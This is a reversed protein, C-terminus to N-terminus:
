RDSEVTSVTGVWRGSRMTVVVAEETEGALTFIVNELGVERRDFRGEFEDSEVTGGEMQEFEQRVMEAAAADGEDGPLRTPALEVLRRADAAAAVEDFPEISTELGVPAPRSVVSLMIAILALLGFLLTARYLRPELM